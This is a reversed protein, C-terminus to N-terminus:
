VTRRESFQSLYGFGKAADGLVNAKPVKVGDFFLESTDQADLGMKHLRAGRKFVRCTPKSSSYDSGM